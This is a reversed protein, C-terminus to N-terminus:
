FCPYSLADFGILRLFSMIAFVLVDGKRGSQRSMRQQMGFVAVAAVDVSWQTPVQAADGM